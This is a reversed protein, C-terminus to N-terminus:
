CSVIKRSRSIPVFFACIAEDFRIFNMSYATNRCQDCRKLCACLLFMDGTSRRLWCGDHISHSSSNRQKPSTAETGDSGTYVHGAHGPQVCPSAIRANSQHGNQKSAIFIFVYTPLHAVRHATHDRDQYCSATYDRAHPVPGLITKQRASSPQRIGM